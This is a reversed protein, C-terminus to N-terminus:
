VSCANQMYDIVTERSLVQFVQAMIYPPSFQNGRKIKGLDDSKELELVKGGPLTTSTM